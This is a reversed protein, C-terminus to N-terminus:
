DKTQLEILFIEVEVWGYLPESFSIVFQNNSSTLSVSRSMPYVISVVLQEDSEYDSELANLCSPLYYPLM